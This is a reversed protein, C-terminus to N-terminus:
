RKRLTPPARKRSAGRTSRDRPQTRDAKLQQTGDANQLQARDARRGSGATRTRLRARDGRDAPWAGGSRLHAGEIRLSLASLSEICCLRLKASEPSQHADRRPAKAGHHVGSRMGCTLMQEHAQASGRQRRRRQTRRSPSKRGRRTPPRFGRPPQWSPTSSHGTKLSPAGSRSAPRALRVRCRRRPTTSSDAKQRRRGGTRRSEGRHQLGRGPRCRCCCRLRRRMTPFATATALTGAAPRRAQLVCRRGRLACACCLVPALARSCM